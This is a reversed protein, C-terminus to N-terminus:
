EELKLNEIDLSSQEREDTDGDSRLSPVVKKGEELVTERLHPAHQLVEWVLGMAHKRIQASPSSAWKMGYGVLREAENTAAPQHSSFSTGMKGKKKNGEIEGVPVSLPCTRTLVRLRAKMVEEDKSDPGMQQLIRAIRHPKILRGLAMLSKESLKRVNGDKHACCVAVRKALHELAARSSSEKAKSSDTLWSARPIKSGEFRRRFLLKLKGKVMRLANLRDKWRKNYLDQLTSLGFLESLSLAVANDLKVDKDLSDLSDETDDAFRMRTAIKLVDDNEEIRRLKLLDHWKGESAERGSGGTESRLLTNPDYRSADEWTDKADAIVSRVKDRLEAAHTFKEVEALTAETQYSLMNVTHLARDLKVIGSTLLQAEEYLKLESCRERRQKLSDLYEKLFAHQRTLNQKTQTPMGLQMLIDDVAAASPPPQKAHSLPSTVGGRIHPEKNPKENPAPHHSRGTRGFIELANIQVQDYQNPMNSYCEYVVVLLYKAQPDDVKTGLQKCKVVQKHSPDIAVRLMSQLECINDAANTYSDFYRQPVIASSISIFPHSTSSGMSCIHIPSRRGEKAKGGRRLKDAARYYYEGNSGPRPISQSAYVDIKRPARMSPVEIQISSVDCVEECETYSDKMMLKTMITDPLPTSSLHQKRIILEQPYRCFRESRWSNQSRNIVNEPGWGIEHSSSHLIRLQLARSHSTERGTNLNKKKGTHFTTM